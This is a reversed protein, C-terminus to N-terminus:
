RPSSFRPPHGLEDAPWVVSLSSSDSVNSGTVLLALPSIALEIYRFFVFHFIFAETLFM